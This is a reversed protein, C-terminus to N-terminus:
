NNNVRTTKIDVITAVSYDQDSRFIWVARFIEFPRVIALIAEILVFMQRFQDCLLFSEISFTKQMTEFM